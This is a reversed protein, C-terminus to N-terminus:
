SQAKKMYKKGCDFSKELKEGIGYYCREDPSYIFPRIRKISSEGKEDLISEEMKVDMIEGIFQTHLGIEVVNIVKCEIVVPFDKIYPADVLVSDITTLGVNALKDEDRGSALGFYDVQTIFDESPINLTFARRSMIAGYTLTAKRLSIGICPPQSCVIGVWAATMANPRGDIDYTCVVISPIPYLLTRAGLSKKM